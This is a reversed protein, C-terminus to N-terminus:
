NKEGPRIIKPMRHNEYFREAGENYFVRCEEHTADKLIEYHWDRIKRIDEVTFASSIEPKPVDYLM